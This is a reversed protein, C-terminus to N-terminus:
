KFKMKRRNLKQLLGPRGNPIVIERMIEDFSLGLAEGASVEDTAVPNIKEANNAILLGLMAGVFPVGIWPLYPIGGGSLVFMVTLLLAGIGMGYVYEPVTFAKVVGFIVRKWGKNPPKRTTTRQRRIVAMIATHDLTLFTITAVLSILGALVSKVQTLITMVEARPDPEIVGLTSTYLSINSHGVVRQIIPSALEVTTTRQTLIQLRRTTIAQGAIFQDMLKVSRSIEEDSLSPVTASLYQLQAAM